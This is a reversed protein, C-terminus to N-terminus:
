TRRRDKKVRREEGAFEITSRSEQTQELTRRENLARRCISRLLFRMVKWTKWVLCYYLLGGLLFAGALWIDPVGLFNGLLGVLMGALAFGCMLVVTEGVTFGALLFIHHLHERDAVFPSQGRLIRRLMMSVADYIPLMLFWLVAAPSTVRAEGQSLNICLWALAIGLLMSGADGLFVCAKSRWFTRLNFMLFAILSAALVLILHQEAYSGSLFSAAGLGLFAILSLSGSLGDLGDCMNMANIVGLCAFVTFPVSLLGLSLLEGSFSLYGLDTLVVNGPFIIILTALFQAFFRIAAPLERYDDWVGVILLILCATYFAHISGDLEHMSDNLYSLFFLSILSSLFISLGGILPISGSHHKRKNPVDVLGISIALPRLLLILVTALAFAFLPIVLSMFGM